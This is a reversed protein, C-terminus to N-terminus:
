RTAKLRTVGVVGLLGSGVLLALILPAPSGGSTDTTSATGTAPPSGSPVATAGQVSSLASPSVVASVSPSLVAGSPSPSQALVQLPGLVLLLLLVALASVGLGATARHGHLSTM